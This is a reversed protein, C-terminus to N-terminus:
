ENLFTHVPTGLPAWDYIWHAEPTYMNVCGHSMPHGFNAHWYTGHLTYPGVFSLVWPVHPLDYGPGQMHVDPRKRWVSYDGLPTKLAGLGSSILFSRVPYGNEYAWLTQARGVDVRIEKGSAEHDRFRDPLTVIELQPDRDFQGIAVQVGGRSTADGAFWQRQLRGQRDYVRLHPGGGLGAGTVLEVSGDGDLDGVAINVGGRFNEGYPTVSWLPSGDLRRVTVAGREGYGAATVLEPTGDTGFDAAALPLSLASGYENVVTERLLKGRPTMLRIAARPADFRQAIMLEPTGADSLLGLDVGGHYSEDFAMFGVGLPTAGFGDFIRIHPGGGWAPSTVIEGRGDGTLDAGLVRVGGRYSADYALFSNVPSGDARWMSVRPEQGIGAGTVIESVGDGGLDVVGLWLNAGAGPVAFSQEEGGTLGDYIRVVRDTPPEAAWIGLPQVLLATAAAGALYRKITSVNGWTM